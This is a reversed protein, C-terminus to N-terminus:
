PSTSGFLQQMKIGTDRALDMDPLVMDPLRCFPLMEATIPGSYHIDQLAKKIAEWDADGELLDDGFGHLVGGADERQFNKVQVAAIRDGLLEIWHEPYGHILVNGVDFYARLYPSEFQDIFLKYEMPGVLFKSWVNELGIVVGRDEAFPILERLSKTSTEWVKQYSVVPASPDWGIDVYGPIVLITKVGLWSAVEIYRRSFDIAQQRQSEEQSSLPTEWYAGSTMTQNVHVGIEAADDLIKKCDEQTIDTDFVGAGFSLELGDFGCEKTEELAQRIPKENEFGGLTWYTLQKISSM